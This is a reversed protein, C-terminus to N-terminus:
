HVDGSLLVAGPVHRLLGLLRTREPPFHCWGEMVQHIHANANNNNDDNSYRDTFYYTLLFM